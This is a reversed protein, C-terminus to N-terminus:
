YATPRRFINCCSCIIRFNIHCIRIWQNSARHQILCITFCFLLMNYNSKLYVYGIILFSYYRGDYKKLITNKTSLYLPWSKALAMAMSSEAFARISQFHSCLVKYLFVVFLLFFLSFYEISLSGSACRMQTTCLQHLVLGKSTM